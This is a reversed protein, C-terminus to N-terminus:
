LGARIARALGVRNRKLLWERRAYTALWGFPHNEVSQDELVMLLMALHDRNWAWLEVGRAEVRYYFKPLEEYAVDISRYLCSDCQVRWDSLDWTGSLDGILVGMERESNKQALAREGCRPCLVHLDRARCRHGYRVHSRGYNM